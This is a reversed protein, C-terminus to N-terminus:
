CEWGTESNYMKKGLMVTECSSQIIILVSKLLMM